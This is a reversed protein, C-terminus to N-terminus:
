YANAQIGNIGDAFRSFHLVHENIVIVSHCLLITSAFHTIVIQYCIYNIMSTDHTARLIFLLFAYLRLSMVNGNAEIIRSGHREIKVISRAIKKEILIALGNQNKEGGTYVIIKVGICTFDGEEKWRTEAEMLVNLNARKM